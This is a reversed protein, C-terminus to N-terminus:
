GQGCAYDVLDIDKKLVTAIMFNVHLYKLSIKLQPGRIAARADLPVCRNNGKTLEQLELVACSREVGKYPSIPGNVINVNLNINAKQAFAYEL